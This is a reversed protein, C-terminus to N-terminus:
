ELIQFEQQMLNHQLESAMLGAKNVIKVACPEKTTINVCARVEGFSGKGIVQGPNFVSSIDRIKRIGQYSGQRSVKKKMEAFKQEKETLQRVLKM